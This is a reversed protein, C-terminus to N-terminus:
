ARTQFIRRKSCDAFDDVLNIQLVPFEGTLFGAADGVENGTERQGVLAVLLSHYATARHKVIKILIEALLAASAIAPRWARRAGKPRAVQRRVASRSSRSSSGLNRVM